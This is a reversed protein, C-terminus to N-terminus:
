GYRVYGYFCPLHLATRVPDVGSMWGSSPGPRSATDWREHPQPARMGLDPLGRGTRNFWRCGAAARGGAPVGPPMLEMWAGAEILKPQMEHSPSTMRRLM